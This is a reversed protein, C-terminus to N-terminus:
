FYVQHGAGEPGRCRRQANDGLDQVWVSGDTGVIGLRELSAAVIIRAVPGFGHALVREGDAALGAGVLVRRPGGTVIRRGAGASAVATAGAPMAMRRRERNAYLAKYASVVADRVLPRDSSADPSPLAARLLAIAGRVAGDKVVNDAESAL